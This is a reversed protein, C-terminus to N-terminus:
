AENKRRVNVIVPNKTENTVCALDSTGFCESWFIKDDICLFLVDNRKDAQIEKERFLNKLSSSHQAKPLKFKDGDKRTRFVTGSPIKDLDLINMQSIERLNKCKYDNLKVPELTIKVQANEYQLKSPEFPIDEFRFYTKKENKIIQASKDCVIFYDGPLNVKGGNILAEDILKLHSFEPANGTINKVWASVIRHRVAPSLVNIKGCDLENDILEHFDSSISNKIYESDDSLSETTRSFSRLFSPNIEKLVPMVSHRIINRTYSDLLNTSDTVYPIKNDACYKEIETREVDILPRILRGAMPPIGTLGALGTGRTLNIFFTEASDDLNHATAIKATSSLSYFYDYRLRRGCEEMSEGTIKSEEPVNIRASCFKINNNECYTKVFAEDSDAEAGRIMHNVHAVIIEIELESKYENLLTLLTMSDAGGSVAAIVMDGPKLMGYKKITALFKDSIM